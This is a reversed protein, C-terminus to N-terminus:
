PERLHPVRVIIRTGAGPASLIQFSGGLAAARARMNPLGQHSPGRQKEVTFGRGNDSVELVVEGTGEARVVLSARSANAHRATNSLGERAIHLLQLTPEPPLDLDHDDDAFLEVDVMTNLRFEDALAALGGVLGVQELLEPRLGFIFNRIDRITLNLREIAREIRAKAEDQNEDMLDPVDELSLGVGYIGQIIGDHLDKGIREREEVVAMRQVQEHLRANEIAIGAHLAFMEVLEQDALSFERAGRKNTMYLDGVSRGKVMISVGLFSTMDPHHPPFGHSRPDAAIDPIRLSVGERILVGLLGHGEPLEGIRERETRGMGSTVFSELMGDSDAMGLAAYEAGVLERLRDCILQLVRELSLVGAIGRTAEDLAALRDVTRRVTARSWAADLAIGLARVAEPREASGELTQTDPDEPARALWLRGADVRGGDIRLPEQTLTTRKSATPRRELTGVGVRLLPIPEAEVDLYAGRAGTALLLVRLADRVSGLRAATPDRQWADLTELIVGVPFPSPRSAPLASRSAV